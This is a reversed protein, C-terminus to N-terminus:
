FVYGIIKINTIPKIIYVKTSPNIKVLKLLIALPLEVEFSM